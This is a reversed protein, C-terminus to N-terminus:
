KETAKRIERAIREAGRGDVVAHMKDSIDQRLQANQFLAAVADLTKGAIHEDERFDGIYKVGCRTEFSKANCIQNDAVTYCVSPTGCAALEFLTTGASTIAADARSM